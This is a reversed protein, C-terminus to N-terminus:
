IEVAASATLEGLDTDVRCSVSYTRTSRNLGATFELLNNVGVTGLIKARFLERVEALNPSKVLIKEFYPLGASEDAFWENAFFQLRMQLSQQVAEADYAWVFKGGEILMDGTLPDRKIDRATSV